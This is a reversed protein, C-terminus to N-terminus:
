RGASRSPLRVTAHGPATIEGRQNEAWVECEVLYEGDKIFKNTVKGKCWTTDGVFNPRRLQVSLGKLFGDDGIWNTMLHSLWSIRQPGYDYAAPMGIRRAMENEWHVREPVDPIGTEEDIVYASPHRRRYALGVRHARILPSGRGMLWAMIDTITLPGKVVPTLEEGMQVDEWYRTKAGRVEERDYDAEIAKLQEPTYRAKEIAAYKERESGGRREMRIGLRRKKALVEGRQNSYITEGVTLVTRGAFESKKEEVSSLYTKVSIVDNLRTPQLWEWEDGAYLGHVGPLGGGGTGDSGAGYLFCPPAIIGGWRTSKAYAEDLWLPNTDGLGLAFHRIADKTAVENYYPERREHVVGIRSRLAALAEETIVGETM